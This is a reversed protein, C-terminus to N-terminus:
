IQPTMESSLLSFNSSVETGGGGNAGVNVDETTSLGGGM